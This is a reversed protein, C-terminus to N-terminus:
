RLLAGPVVVREDGVSGTVNRLDLGVVAPVGHDLLADGLELGCAQRV